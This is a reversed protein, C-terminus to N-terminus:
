GYRFRGRALVRGDAGRVRYSLDIRAGDRYISLGAGHEGTVALVVRGDRIGTAVRVTPDVRVRRVGGAEVRLRAIRKATASVHWLHGAEDRKLIRYGVLEWDGAAVARRSDAGVPQPAEEGWSLRLARGTPDKLFLVGDSFGEPVVFGANEPAEGAPPAALARPLALPRGELYRM